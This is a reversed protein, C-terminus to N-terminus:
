LGWIMLNVINTKAYLKDNVGEPASHGWGIVALSIFVVLMMAQFIYPFGPWLVLSRIPRIRLVDYGQYDSNNKM